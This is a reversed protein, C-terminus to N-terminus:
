SNVAIQQLSLNTVRRTAGTPTFPLGAANAKGWYAYMREISGSVTLMVGGVAQGTLFLFDTDPVM